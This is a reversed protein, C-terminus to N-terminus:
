GSSGEIDVPAEAPPETGATSPTPPPQQEVGYLSFAVPPFHDIFAKVLRLLPVLEGPKRESGWLLMQRRDIQITVDKPITDKTELLWSMMRQDLLDTAFKRDKSRVTFAKNFDELELEIDHLGIHDAIRGFFGERSLQFPEASKLGLRTLVCSYRSWQRTVKHTEQDEHETYTWRDFLRVQLGKWTGSLVNEVGTTGSILASPLRVKGELERADHAFRLGLKQAVNRLREQRGPRDPVGFAPGAAIRALSEFPNDSSVMAGLTAFPFAIRASTSEPNM